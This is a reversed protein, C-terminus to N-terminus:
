SRPQASRMSAEDLARLLDDFSPARDMPWASSLTATFLGLDRGVARRVDVVGESVPIRTTFQDMNPTVNGFAQLALFIALADNM